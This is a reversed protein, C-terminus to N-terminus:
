GGFTLGEDDSDAPVPNSPAPQQTRRLAYFGQADPQGLQRLLNSVMAPADARARLRIDYSYSRDALLRAEGTADVSGGLAGIEAVIEDGETRVRAEFDGLVVPERALTWALKLVRVSGQAEAPWGDVIRLADIQLGVEGNVPVFGQGAAAALARLDTSAKLASAHAGLPTLALDGDLLVPAGDAHVKFAVRGLPLAWPRLKWHLDGLLSANGRQVRRARGDAITGDIGYARIPLDPAARLAWGYVLAAPAQLLLAVLLTLTGILLLTRTRM